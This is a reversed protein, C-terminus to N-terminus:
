KKIEPLSPSSNMTMMFEVKNKIFNLPVRVLSYTKEIFTIHDQMKSCDKKLVGLVNEISELRKEISELKELLIDM